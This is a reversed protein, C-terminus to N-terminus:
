AWNVRSSLAAITLTNPHEASAPHLPFLTFFLALWLTVVVAQSRAMM